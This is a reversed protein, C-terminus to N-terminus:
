DERGVAARGAVRESGGARAARDAGVEVLRQGALGGRLDALRQDVRVGDDDGPVRRVRHRGEGVEGLLVEPLEDLEEQLGGALVRAAASGCGLIKPLRPAWHAGRRKEDSSSCRGSPRSRRSTWRW